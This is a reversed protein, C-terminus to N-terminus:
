QPELKAKIYKIDGSIDALKESFREKWVRDLDSTAQAQQVVDEISKELQTIRYGYLQYTGLVGLVAMVASCVLSALVPYVVRERLKEAQERTM